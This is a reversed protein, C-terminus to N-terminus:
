RGHISLGAGEFIATVAAEVKSHTLARTPVVVGDDSTAEGSTGEDSTAEGSTGEGSDAVAALDEPAPDWLQMQLCEYCIVLDVQRGGGTVRIGHRPDFCAAVRGDSARIGRIVLRALETVRDEAALSARGLIRYGHFSSGRDPPTGEESHPYPHLAFLEMSEAAEIADFTDADIASPQSCACAIVGVAVIRSLRRAEPGSGRGAKVRMM